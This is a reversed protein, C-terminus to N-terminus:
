LPRTPLGMVSGDYTLEVVITPADLKPAPISLQAGGEPTTQVQLDSTAGLIRARLLKPGTAFAPVVVSKSLAGDSLPLVHLFITNGVRTSGATSSPTFPGGRTGYIAAGHNQLWKGLEQLRAIQDTPIHGTPAPGVNLLLNGDRVATNTLLLVLEQLSRPRAGPQYGWTGALTVCLEWPESNEFGGLRETGERTRWDGPASTRDNILVHPQLQRVRKSVLDDQWSFPGSYPKNRERSKWQAGDFEIGGFGLWQEGGGDFWILDLPGYDSVLQEIERHYQERMAEASELYLDPFFYGPFRWDLPSYYLGVRLGQTRAAQLFERVIDQHAATRVSNFPNAHSDFLAFGDHHRATLVIYKMGAQRAVTAWEEAIRPDPKFSAALKAYERLAIRESFRVWEGRGAVSYVGFHIFMGFRAERWWAVRQDAEPGTRVVSLGFPPPAPAGQAVMGTPAVLLLGFVALRITVVESGLLKLRVDRCAPAHHQTICPLDVYELFLSACIWISM